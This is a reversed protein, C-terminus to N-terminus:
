AAEHCKIANTRAALRKETENQREYFRARQAQYRLERCVECYVRPRKGLRIFRFPEECQRCITSEIAKM